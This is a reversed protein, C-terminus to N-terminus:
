ERAGHEIVAELIGRLNRLSIGEDLLRRLLEAVRQLSAVRLTERVLESWASEMRGLLQRTEQIGVFQSAQRRLTTAVADVLAEATEAHGVGTAGLTARDHQAAWLATPQGPLPDGRQLSVGALEANEPDDRLLLGGAPVAGEIVPVGDIDLRFREGDLPHICL